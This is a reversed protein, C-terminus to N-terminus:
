ANVLWSEFTKFVFYNNQVSQLLRCGICDARTCGTAAAFCHHRVNRNTNIRQSYIIKIIVYLVLASRCVVAAASTSVIAINNNNQIKHDEDLARETPVCGRCRCTM